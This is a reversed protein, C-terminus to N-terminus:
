SKSNVSNSPGMHNLIALAAINWCHELLVQRSSHVHQSCYYTSTQHVSIESVNKNCVSQSAVPYRFSFYLQRVRQTFISQSHLFLGSINSPSDLFTRPGTWPVFYFGQALGSINNPCDLVMAHHTWFWLMTLGFWPTDDTNVINSTRGFLPGEQFKFLKLYFCKRKTTKTKDVENTYMSHFTSFLCTLNREKQSKGPQCVHQAFAVFCSSDLIHDRKSPRAFM